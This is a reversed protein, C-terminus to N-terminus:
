ILNLSILLLKNIKNKKEKGSFFTDFTQHNTQGTRCQISNAFQDWTLYFHIATFSLWYKYISINFNQGSFM